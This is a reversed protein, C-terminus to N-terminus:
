YLAGHAQIGSRSKSKSALPSFRIVEIVGFQVVAADLYADTGGSIRVL